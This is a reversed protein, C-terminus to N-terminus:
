VGRTEVTDSMGLVRVRVKKACFRCTDVGSMIAFGSFSEIEGCVRTM